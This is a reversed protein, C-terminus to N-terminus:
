EPDHYDGVCACIVGGFCSSDCEAGEALNQFDAGPGPLGRMLEAYADHNFMKAVYWAM